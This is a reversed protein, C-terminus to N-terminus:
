CPFNPKKPEQCSAISSCIGLFGCTGAAFERRAFCPIWSAYCPVAEAIDALEGTLAAFSGPQM